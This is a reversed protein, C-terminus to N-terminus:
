GFLAKSLGSQGKVKRSSSEGGFMSKLTKQCDQWYDGSPTGGYPLKRESSSKAIGLPAILACLKDKDKDSMDLENHASEVIHNMKKLLGPEWDTCFKTYLESYNNIANEIIQKNPM